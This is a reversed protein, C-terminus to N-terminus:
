LHVHVEELGHVFFWDEIVDRNPVPSSHSSFTERHQSIFSDTLCVFVLTNGNQGNWLVKTPSFNIIGEFCVSVHMNDVVWRRSLFGNVISNLQDILLLIAAVMPWIVSAHTINTHESFNIIAVILLSFMAGLDAFSFWDFRKTKQTAPFTPMMVWIAEKALTEAFRVDDTGFTDPIKVFAYFAGSPTAMDLGMDKVAAEVFDRRKQYIKRMEIPDDLGNTLAETAAAQAPNSPSTVMFAHMKTANATFEAPAAIYGMRWGTM